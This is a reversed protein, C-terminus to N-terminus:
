WSPAGSSPVGAGPPTPGPGRSRPSGAASATTSWSWPRSGRGPPRRSRAAAELRERALELDRDDRERWSERWGSIRSDLSGCARPGARTRSSRAPRPGRSTGTARSPARSAVVLDGVALDHLELERLVAVAGGALDVQPELLRLRAEHVVGPLAEGVDASPRVGDRGPLLPRMALSYIKGADDRFYVGGLIGGEFGEVGVAAAQEPTLTRTGQPLAMPDEPPAFDSPALDTWPWDRFTVGELGEAPTLVARYAAPEYADSALSGGADFDRLRTGLEGDGAQDRHRRQAGTRWAWRWSRSPRRSGTPTSRSCPPRRTRWSRTRTSPAPSRSAARPSPTSSSRRSRTRPSSRPGSRRPRGDRRGRGTGAADSASAFVVTGDGFLTFYPRTRPSGSPGCADRGGRRLPPHDRGRRDPPQDGRRGREPAATPDASGDASPAPSGGASSCATATRRRVLLAAPLMRRMSMRGPVGARGVTGSM